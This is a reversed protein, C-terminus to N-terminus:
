GQALTRSVDTRYARWASGRATTAGLVLWREGQAVKWEGVRLVETTGYRHALGRVSIM